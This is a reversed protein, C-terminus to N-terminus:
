EAYCQLNREPRMILESSPKCSNSHGYARPVSCRTGTRRTQPSDLSACASVVGAGIDALAYVGAPLVRTSDGKGSSHAYVAYGGTGTAFGSVGDTGVGKAVGNVGISTNFGATTTATGLPPLDLTGRVAAMGGVDLLAAPTTVNIGVDNGVQVINSNGITNAGTFVAVNGATGSGTIAGSALTQVDAPQATQLPTSALAALQEQTVFDSAAHGVLSEADASKMAYPVRSLRVREPEPAGEVSIGIWRAAGGAFASLPLGASSASGLLVSYSGDASVPIQQTETWISESGERATYIRFEVAVTQGARAALKGAFRV